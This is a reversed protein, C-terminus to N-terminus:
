QKKHSSVYQWGQERIGNPGHYSLERFLLFDDATKHTTAEIGLRSWKM